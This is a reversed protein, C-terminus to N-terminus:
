RVTLTGQMGGQRHGDVSCYFVYRGPSLTVTATATADQITKTAGVVKAGRAITVNHPLPSRNVFRVTDAGASITAQRTDYALAGSPDASLTLTASATPAGAPAAAAHQGEGGATLVAAAMTGVVVLGTILMVVLSPRRMRPFEPRIMGFAALAVAWAVLAGGVAYFPTKSTAAAVRWTASVADVPLM